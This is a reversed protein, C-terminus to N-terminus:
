KNISWIGPLGLLTKGMALRIVGINEILYAPPYKKGMELVGNTNIVIARDVRSLFNESWKRGVVRCNKDGRQPCERCIEDYTDILKVIGVQEKLIALISDVLHDAFQRGEGRGLLKFQIAKLERLVDIGWKAKHWFHFNSLTFLHHARLEM